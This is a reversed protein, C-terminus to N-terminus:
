PVQYGMSKFEPPVRSGNCYQSVVSPDAQANHQTAGNYGTANTLLSYMPNLTVTSNHNTPGTDGRVGPGRFGPGSVCPGPGGTIHVGGSANPATADGSPQSAAATGSFANYLAVVNQQNQTGTGLSGVGIYFARNQWFVNNYLEPYSVTRCTGNSATTGAYHGAPCTITLDSSCVDSSWDCLSRTHRRRSSLFFITSRARAPHRSPSPRPPPKRPPAPLPFWRPLRLRMSRGCCLLAGGARM